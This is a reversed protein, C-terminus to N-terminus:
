PLTHIFYFVWFVKISKVCISLSCTHFYCIAGWCLIVSYTGIAAKTRLPFVVVVVV